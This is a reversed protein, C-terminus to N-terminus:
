WGRLDQNTVTLSWMDNATDTSAEGKITITAGYSGDYVGVVNTIKGKVTTTVNGADITFVIDAGTILKAYATVAPAGFLIAVEASVARKTIGMSNFGGAGDQGIGKVEHSGEISFSTLDVDVLGAGFNMQGGLVSFIRGYNDSGKAQFVIDTPNSTQSYTSGNGTLEVEYKIASDMEWSIALKNAVLGGVKHCTSTIPNVKLASLFCGADAGFDPVATFFNFTKVYGPSTAESVSQFLSYAFFDFDHINLDGKISATPMAGDMSHVTGRTVPNLNAIAVPSEHIKVNSNIDFHEVDLGIWPGADATAAAFDTGKAIAYKLNRDGFFQAM